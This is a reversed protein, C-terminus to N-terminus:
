TVRQRHCVLAARRLLDLLEVEEIGSPLEDEVQARIVLHLAVPRNSRNLKIACFSNVFQLLMYATM